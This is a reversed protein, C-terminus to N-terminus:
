HCSDCSKIVNHMDVIRNTIESIKADDMRYISMNMGGKLGHEHVHALEQKFRYFDERIKSPLDQEDLHLLHYVYNSALWERRRAHHEHLSSIAKNFKYLAYSAKFKHKAM